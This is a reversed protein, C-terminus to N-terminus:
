AFFKNSKNKRLILWGPGEILMGNNVDLQVSMKSEIAAINDHDVIIKDGVDLYVKNLTGRKNGLIVYPTMDPINSDKFSM